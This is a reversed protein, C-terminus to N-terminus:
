SQPSILQSPIIEYIYNFGSTDDALFIHNTIPEYAVSWKGNTGTAVNAFTSINISIPAAAGVGRPIAYVDIASTAGSGNVYNRTVIFDGNVPEIALGGPPHSADFAAPLTWATGVIAGTSANRQTITFNSSADQAVMYFDNPTGADYAIGTAKITGGVYSSIDLTTPTLPSTGTLAFSYVKTGASDLALIDTGSTKVAVSSLTISTALTTAIGSGIIVGKRDTYYISPQGSTTNKGVIILRERSPDWTVGGLTFNAHFLTGTSVAFSQAIQNDNVAPSTMSATSTVFNPGLAVFLDSPLVRTAEPTGKGTSFQFGQLDVKKAQSPASLVPSSTGGSCTLYSASETSSWVGNSNTDQFDTCNNISSSYLFRPQNLGVSQLVYQTYASV